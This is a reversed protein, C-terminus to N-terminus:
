NDDTEAGEGQKITIFLINETHSDAAARKDIGCGYAAILGMDDAVVPANERIEPPLKMENQLKRLPKTVGRSKLSIVDGAMRTRCILSGQIKDYDVYFTAVDKCVNYSCDTGKESIELKISYSGFSNIGMDLTVADGAQSAKNVGELLGARTRLFIDGSLQVARGTGKESYDKLASIVDDIMRSDPTIGAKSSIVSSVARKLLPAPLSSLALIDYGNEKEAAKLKEDALSSLFQEDENLNDICRMANHAFGSNVTTLETIVNHRIRNRTYKVDANTKDTVYPIGNHECYDNIEQKTCDILPRVVNGRIVPISCLGKLSTGRAFNFLFTEARDNLNHATAIVINDGLSNFFGYRVERGAEEVTKGEKLALAKVDAKLTHLTIGLSECQEKVFAEDSDADQGRLCHNVHAAELTIGYDDKLSCLVHLLSMSDSGGSLAVIVRSGKPILNYKDITQKVKAKMTYEKLPFSYHTSVM